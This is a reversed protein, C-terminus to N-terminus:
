TSDKGTIASFKRALKEGKSTPGKWPSCRATPWSCSNACILAYKNSWCCCLLLVFLSLINIIIVFVACVACLNIENHLPFFPFICFLLCGCDRARFGNSSIHNWLNNILRIPIPFSFLALGSGSSLDIRSVAERPSSGWQQGLSTVCTVSAHSAKPVPFRPHLNGYWEWMM